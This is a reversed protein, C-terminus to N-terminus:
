ADEAKIEGIEHDPPYMADILPQYKREIVERVMKLTPTLDGQAVSLEHPIFRYDRVQEWHNLHANVQNLIKKMKTKIFDSQLFDEDSLHTLDNDRKLSRLVEFNPVLLCSVFKRQEAIVLAMDIFPAKCFAQEIAIPVILEGTSSKFIEKIRGSITVFGEEDISGKDGTHLWGEQDLAEQTAKPNNFYGRMVNVGRVLIEGNDAIRIELPGIPLGITGVKNKGIRNVTFPCGETLGWGQFVPVGIDIFFHCLHPDLASGGSIVVRLSGGLAERLHSYVLNEAFTHFINKWITKKEENALDFAFQAISRKLCPADHINLAMKAYVKELLRPVVVLITPHIERCAQSINKLDNFYYVSVGWALMILNLTRAYIHALPLANLYRDNQSDWNFIEEHILGFLSSHTHEVGKPSGTSGSTYVITALDAPQIDNLLQQYLNPQAEHLERGLACLDDYFVVESGPQANDLSVIKKFFHKGKYYRLWSEEDSLFVVKPETQTMEFSFNEESINPFIPVTVLGVSLIALDIMTWKSSSPAMIGVRDGKKLGLQILGLALYKIELLYEEVSLSHWQAYKYTNLARPNIHTEEINKLFAGITLIQEM